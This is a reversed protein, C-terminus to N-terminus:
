AEEVHIAIDIDQYLAMDRQLDELQQILEEIQEKTTINKPVRVVRTITDQGDKLVQEKEQELREMQRKRGLQQVFAEIEHLQTALAFEQNLLLRLGHLDSSVEVMLEELQSFAQSHEEQTLEKWESIRLLGEKANSLM